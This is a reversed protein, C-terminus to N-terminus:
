QMLGEKKLAEFYIKSNHPKLCEPYHKISISVFMDWVRDKTVPYGTEKVKRAALRYLEMRDDYMTKKGGKNYSDNAM